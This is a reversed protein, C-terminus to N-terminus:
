IFDALWQPNPNEHVVAVVGEYDNIAPYEALHIIKVGMKEIVALELELITAPLQETHIYPILVSSEREFLDVDYGWKRLHYAAALGAPNSGLVAIRKGNSEPKSIKNLETKLVLEKKIERISVSRNVDGKRCIKECPANCIYCLTAPIVLTDRLLALADRWKGQDYLRNMMAVDFDGPCAVKCPADCDARHDSLLLELSLTRTLIVDPSESDIQMGETPLTTCSPIIQGTACNKVACVMCSSKHKAEKSYCLSPIFFGERRAVEILTEGVFAELEKNNISIKM